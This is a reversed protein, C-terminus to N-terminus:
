QISTAVGEDMDDAKGEGLEDEQREDEVMIEMVQKFKPDFISSMHMLHYASGGHKPTRRYYIWNKSELWVLLLHIAVLLVLVVVGWLALSM